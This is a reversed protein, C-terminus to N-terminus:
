SNNSIFQKYDVWTSYLSLRSCAYVEEDALAFTCRNLKQVVTSTIFRDHMKKLDKLPQKDNFRNSIMLVHNSDLPYIFEFIGDFKTNYVLGNNICFGPNDSTLIIDDPKSEYIFWAFQTLHIALNILFGNNESHSALLYSNHLEKSTNPDNLWQIRMKEITEVIEVGSLNFAESVEATFYSDQSFISIQEDFLNNIRDKTIGDRVVKNRQKISLFAFILRFADDESLFSQRKIIKDIIKGLTNEYFKFSNKEVFSPDDIQHRQIFLPSEFKYFNNRYCVASPHFEKSNKPFIIARKKLKLLKGNVNTFQNLYTKPVIHSNEKM